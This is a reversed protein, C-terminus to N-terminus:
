AGTDIEEDFAALLRALTDADIGARDAAVLLGQRAEFRLRCAQDGCGSARGRSLERAAIVRKEGCACEVRVHRRRQSENGIRRPAADGIVTWRGVSDGVDIRAGSSRAAGSSM